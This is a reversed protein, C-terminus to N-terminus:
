ENYLAVIESETIERNFLRIDDMQGKYKFSYSNNSAGIILPLSMNKITNTGNHYSGGVYAGDLYFRSEGAKFSVVLHHWTNLTYSFSPYPLTVNSGIATLRMGTGQTGSYSDFSYGSNPSNPTAKDILRYGVSNPINIKVWMSISLENTGMDLSNADPISIYTNGDFTFSSNVNNKRDTGSYNSTGVVSGNNGNGSNDNTNGNFNYHAVLGNTPLQLFLSSCPDFSGIKPLKEEWFKAELEGEALKLGFANLEVGVGGKLGAKLCYDIQNPTSTSYEADGKLYTKCSANIGVFEYFKLELKTKLYVEVSARGSLDFDVTTPNSIPISKMPKFSNDYYEKYLTFESKDTAEFSMNASIEGEAGVSLKVSPTVYIIGAIPVPTLTKFTAINVSTDFSLSALNADFKFSKTFTHKYGIKAYDFTISSGKKRKLELIVSPEFELTGTVKIRDNETSNNGDRDYLICNLSSSFSSSTQRTTWDQFTIIEKINCEEIVFDLTTPETQIIKKSGSTNISLIKRLFGNPFFSTPAGIIINGVILSDIQSTSNITLSNVTAQTIALNSSNNLVVVNSFLKLTGLPPFEDDSNKLTEKKCSVTILLIILLQFLNRKM